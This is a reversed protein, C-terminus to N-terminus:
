RLAAFAQKLLSFFTLAQGLEGGGSTRAELMDLTADQAKVQETLSAIRDELKQAVRDIRSDLVGIKEDVDDESVGVGELKDDVEYETMYGANSLADEVKSDFDDESVLGNLDERTAYDGSEIVSEVRQDFDDASVFEDALVDRAIDRVTDDLDIDITFQAM